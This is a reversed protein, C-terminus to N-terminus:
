RTAPTCERGVLVWYISEWGGSKSSAAFILLFSGGGAARSAPPPLRQNTEYCQQVWLVVREKDKNDVVVSRGGEETKTM